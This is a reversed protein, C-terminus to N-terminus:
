LHLTMGPFPAREVVEFAGSGPSTLTLTKQYRGKRSEYLEVEVDAMEAHYCYLKSGDPDTYTVGLCDKLKRKFTARVQHFGGSGRLQWTELDYQSKNLLWQHVRNFKFVKGNGLKLAFLTFPHTMKQGFKLQVSLAEFVAGADEKFTNCHGWAWRGAHQSGWLHAQQGPITKVAFHKGDV